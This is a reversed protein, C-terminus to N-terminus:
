RDYPLLHPLLFFLRIVMEPLDSRDPALPLASQAANKETLKALAPAPQQVTNTLCLITISVAVFLTVVVRTHARFLLTPSALLMPENQM